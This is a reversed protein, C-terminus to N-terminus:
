AIMVASSPPPFAVIEFHLTTTFCKQWTRPIAPQFIAGYHMKPTLLQVNQYHNEYNLLFHKQVVRYLHPGVPILNKEGVNPYQSLPTQSVAELPM